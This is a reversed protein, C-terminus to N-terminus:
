REHPMLKGLRVASPRAEFAQRSALRHLKQRRDEPALDSELLRQRSNGLEELWGAIDRPIQREFERRFRQALAPSRGATSIAVQLHGRRVVAPYYFDCHEPDDVANCLINRSQAERFVIHNLDSSSTAAIVMFAGALDTFEFLRPEWSLVGARAWGAVAPRATPAIVRVNAGTSLLSRIKTEGVRGAGVVVCSRDELKLFVPFLNM